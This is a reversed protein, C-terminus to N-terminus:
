HTGSARVAWAMSKIRADVSKSVFLAPSVAASDSYLKSVASARCKLQLGCASKILTGSLHRSPIKVGESNLQGVRVATGPRRPVHCNSNHCAPIRVRHCITASASCRSPLPWCTPTGEEASPSLLLPAVLNLKRQDGPGLWPGM